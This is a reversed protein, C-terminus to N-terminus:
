RRRRRDRRWIHFENVKLACGHGQFLFNVNFRSKMALVVRLRPIVSSTLLPPELIICIPM